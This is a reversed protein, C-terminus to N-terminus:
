VIRRWAEATERGLPADEELSQCKWVLLMAESV